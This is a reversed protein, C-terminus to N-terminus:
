LDLDRAEEEELEEQALEEDTEVLPYWRVVLRRAEQESLDGQQLLRARARRVHRRIKPPAFYWIESYASQDGQSMARAMDLGYEDKLRQYERGRILEMLNEELEFSKKESLEAEIAIIQGDPYQIEGDPRHLLKRGKRRIVGQLLQRERIWRLSEEDMTLHLRIENIAYLHRLERLSSQELHHYAYPLGVKRLGLRTPWVWLSGKAGLRQALAWKGLKWRTVVDRAAGESIWNDYEAGNGPNRGLLWQLHNLHIGYQHAIWTLAFEDRENFQISGADSRQKRPM